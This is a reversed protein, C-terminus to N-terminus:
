TLGGDTTSYVKEGPTYGSLTAWVKNPDSGSIALGSIANTPIPLSGTVNSWSTGGDTTKYVQYYTAAYIYNPDSKAVALSIVQGSVITSIDNWTAGGDISKAVENGGYFLTQPDTPHMVMPATWAGAGPTIATWNDGGDTSKRFNGYQWSGYVINANTYDVVSEAGDNPLVRDWQGNKLRITGRDQVGGFIIGADTAAGGMAYYQTLQLGYSLNTNTTGTSRFLGGDNALLATVGDPLFVADHHDVYGISMGGWNTGGDVTYEINAGGAIIRNPDTPSITLVNDWYGYFTTGAPNMPSFATGQNTSLYFIGPDNLESSLVYVNDPAAPTVAVSVSVRRYFTNQPFVPSGPILSWSVGGDTSKFISDSVAYVISSNTPHFEMDYINGGKQKSWTAGADTSRWIGDNTGTLLHSTNAPDLLLRRLIKEQDVTYSMGSPNWSNGGDTSKMVGYSYTGGAFWPWGAPSYGYHDGTALYIIQSNTPDIVINAISLTPLTGTKETWNAGADTSKWIGGGPTGVWFVNNPDSPDLAICNVRGWGPNDPGILSWDGAQTKFSGRNDEELSARYAATPDFDGSPYVRPAMFQELRKFKKWESDGEKDGWHRDYYRDLAAQLEYFNSTGPEAEQLWDQAEVSSLTAMFILGYVIFISLFFFTEYDVFNTDNGKLYLCNSLCDCTLYSLVGLNGM